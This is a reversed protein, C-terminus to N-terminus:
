RIPIYEIGFWQANDDWKLRYQWSSSRNGCNLIITNNEVAIRVSNGIPGWYDKKPYIGEFNEKSLYTIYKGDSTKGIIDINQVGDTGGDKVVFFVDGKNSVIEYIDYFALSWIPVTNNINNPDGFRNQANRMLYFRVINDRGFDYYQNELSTPLAFQSGYRSGDKTTLNGIGIPQSLTIAWCSTPFNFIIILLIILKKMFRGRSILQDIMIDIM